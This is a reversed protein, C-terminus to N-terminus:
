AGSRKSQSTVFTKAVIRSRTNVIIGEKIMMAFTIGGPISPVMTDRKVVIMFRFWNVILVANPVQTFSLNTPIVLSLM